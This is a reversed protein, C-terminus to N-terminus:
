RGRIRRKKNPRNVSAALSSVEGKDDHIAEFLIENIENFKQSYSIM